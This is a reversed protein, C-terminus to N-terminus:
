DVVVESGNIAITTNYTYVYNFDVSAFNNSDKLARIVSNEYMNSLEQITSVNGCEVYEKFSVECVVVGDNGGTAVIEFGFNDLAGEKKAPFGTGVDITTETSNVSIVTCSSSNVSQLASEVGSADNILAIKEIVGDGIVKVSMVIRSNLEKAPTVVLLNVNANNQVFPVSSSPVILDNDNKSDAIAYESGNWKFDKLYNLKQSYLDLDKIVINKSVVAEGDKNNNVTYEYVIANSYISDVGVLRVQDIGGFAGVAVSAIFTLVSVIVLGATVIKIAPTTHLQSVEGDIIVKKSSRKKFWKKLQANVVPTISQLYTAVIGIFLPMFFAPVFLSVVAFENLVLPLIIGSAVMPINHSEYCAFKEPKCIQLVGGVILAIAQLLAVPGFLYAYKPCAFSLVIATLILLMSNAKAISAECNFTKAFLNTYFTSFVFAFVAFIIFWGVNNAVLTFMSAISIIGVLSLTLAVIFYAVFLTAITCLVSLVNALAGFALSKPNHLKKLILYTIILALLLVLVGGMIYGVYNAYWISIDLYNFIASPTENSVNSLDLNGAYEVFRSMMATLQIAANDSVNQTDYLGDKVGATVFNLASKSDLVSYDNNASLSSYIDGVLSSSYSLGSIRAYTSLASKGANETGTMVLVGGDTVCDFNAILKVRKRVGYFLDKYATANMFANVGLGASYNGDSFLFVLDNEFEVDNSMIYEFLALASGTAIGNSVYPSTGRKSDFHSVIMVADSLAATDITFKNGDIDIKSKTDKGPVYLVVNQIKKTKIVNSDDANDGYSAFEDSTVNKYTSYYAPVIEYVDKETNGSSVGSKKGLLLESINTGSTATSLSKSTGNKDYFGDYNDAYAGKIAKTIASVIEGREKHDSVTSSYDVDFDNYEIDSGDKSTVSTAYDYVTSLEIDTSFDGLTSNLFGGVCLFLILVAVIPYYFLKFKKM